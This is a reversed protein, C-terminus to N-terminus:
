KKAARPSTPGAVPPAVPPVVPVNAIANALDTRTTQLTTVVAAVPALQEATAGNALAADLASQILGSIGNIVTTAGQMVTVDQNAEDVVAQVAPNAMHHEKIFIVGSAKAQSM